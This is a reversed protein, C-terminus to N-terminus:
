SEGRLSRRSEGADLSDRSGRTIVTIVGADHSDQGGADHSYHGGRMM